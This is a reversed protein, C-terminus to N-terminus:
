GFAILHLEMRRSIWRSTIGQSANTSNFRNFGWMEQPIMESPQIGQCLFYSWGGGFFFFDHFGQDKEVESYKTWCPNWGDSYIPIEMTMPIEMFITPKYHSIGHFHIIVLPITGDRGFVGDSLRRLDQVVGEAVAERAFRASEACRQLLRCCAAEAQYDADLWRPVYAVPKFSIFPNYM